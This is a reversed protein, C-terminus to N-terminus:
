FAKNIQTTSKCFKAFGPVGLCSAAAAHKNKICKERTEQPYEM